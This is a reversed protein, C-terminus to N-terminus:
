LPSSTGGGACSTQGCACSCAGGNPAVVVSSANVAQELIQAAERDRSLWRRLAPPQYTDPVGTESHNM